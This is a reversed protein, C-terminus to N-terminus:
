AAHVVPGSRHPWRPVAAVDLRRDGLLGLRLERHQGCWPQDQNTGRRRHGLWRARRTCRGQHWHRDAQGGQWDHSCAPSGPAQPRQPGRPGAVPRGQPLQGLAVRPVPRRHDSDDPPHAEAYMPLTGTVTRGVAMVKTGFDEFPIVEFGQVLGGYEFRLSDRNTGPSEQVDWRYTGGINKLYNLRTRKGTGARHSDMLGLIFSLREKFTSNITIREDWDAVEPVNIFGVPSFEADRAGELQDQIIYSIREKVYKAGGNAISTDPGKISFREDYVKSLLGLYDMGYFVVEDPTADFDIILGAHVEHWGSGRYLELAYHVLYPEILHAQEHTAPLTFFFEGPSNLWEGAGVNSADEIIAIPPNLPGRTNPDGETGTNVERILIRAKGRARQDYATSFLSTEPSPEYGETLEFGTVASWDSEAGLRNSVRIRFEYDEPDLGPGGWFLGPNARSAEPVTQDGSDWVLNSANWNAAGELRAQVRVFVVASSGPDSVPVSFRVGNLTSFSLGDAPAPTGIEPATGLLQFQPKGTWPTWSTSKKGKGRVRWCYTRGSRLLGATDPLSESFAAGAAESATAARSRNWARTEGTHSTTHRFLEIQVSALRDGVIGPTFTGTFEEGEVQSIVSAPGTQFMTGPPM